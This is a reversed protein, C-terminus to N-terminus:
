NQGRIFRDEVIRCKGGRGGWRNRSTYLYLVPWTGNEIRCFFNASKKAPVTLAPAVDHICQSSSFYWFLGSYFLNIGRRM